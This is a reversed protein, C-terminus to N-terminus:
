SGRLAYGLPRIRATRHRESESLNRSRRLGVGVFFAAGFALNSGRGNGCFAGPYHNAPKPLGHTCLASASATVTPGHNIRRTM